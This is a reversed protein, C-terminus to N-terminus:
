QPFLLQNDFLGDQLKRQGKLLMSVKQISKNGLIEIAGEQELSTVIPQM